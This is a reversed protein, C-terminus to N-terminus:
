KRRSHIMDKFVVRWFRPLLGKDDINSGSYLDAASYILKLIFSDCAAILVNHPGIRAGKGKCKSASIQPVSLREPKEEYGGTKQEM